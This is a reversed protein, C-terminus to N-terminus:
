RTKHANDGGGSAGVTVTVREPTDDVGLKQVATQGDASAYLASVPVVLVKEDTSAAEVTLRVDAGAMAAPLPKKTKVVLQHSRAGTDDQRLAGISSISGV